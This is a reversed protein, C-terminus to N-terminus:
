AHAAERLRYLFSSDFRELGAPSLLQSIVRDGVLTHLVCGPQNVPDHVPPTARGILFSTPPAWVVAPDDASGTYSRFEHRHGCAILRLTSGAVLGRLRMRAAAPISMDDDRDEGFHELYPPKHM